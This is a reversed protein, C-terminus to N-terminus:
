ASSIAIWIALSAGIVKLWLRHKSHQFQASYM